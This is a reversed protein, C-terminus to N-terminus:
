LLAFVLVGLLGADGVWGGARQSALLYQEAMGPGLPALALPVRRWMGAGAVGHVLW